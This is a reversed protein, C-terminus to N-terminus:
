IDPILTERLVNRRQKFSISRYEHMRCWFGTNFGDCLAARKHQALFCWCQVTSSQFFTIQNSSLEMTRLRFDRWHRHMRFFPWAKKDLCQSPITLDPFTVIITQAHKVPAPGPENITQSAPFTLASWYRSIKFSPTTVKTSLSNCTGGPASEITTAVSSVKRKMCSLAGHWVAVFTLFNKVFHRMGVIFHGAYDGSKFGISFRHVSKLSRKWARHAWKPILGEVRLSTKSFHASMRLSNYLSCPISNIVFSMSDIGLCTAATIAVLPPCM